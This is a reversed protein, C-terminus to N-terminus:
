TPRPYRARRRLIFWLGGIAIVAGAAAGAIRQPWSRTTGEIVDGELSVMDGELNGGEGSDLLFLLANAARDPFPRWGWPVERVDGPYLERTQGKPTFAVPPTGELYVVENFEIPESETDDLVYTIDYRPGLYHEPRHDGKNTGNLVPGYLNGQDSPGLQDELADVPFRIPDDYGPGSIVLHQLQCCKANAPVAVVIGLLLVLVTLSLARRPM